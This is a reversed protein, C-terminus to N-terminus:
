KSQHRYEKPSLGKQKKFIRSFYLPNDYGVIAAIESITYGTTELLNQANAIRISLVYQMPTMGTYHKFSRIFWCTSVHRSAAYEEISIDKHYNENFYYTAKEIEEQIYSNGKKEQLQRDMLLFIQRLMLTLLEEYGPRCM